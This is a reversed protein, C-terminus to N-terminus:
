QYGTLARSTKLHYSLQFKCNYQGQLIVTHSQNLQEKAMKLLDNKGKNGTSLLFVLNGSKM